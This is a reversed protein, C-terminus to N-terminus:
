PIQKLLNHKILLEREAIEVIKDLNVLMEARDGKQQITAGDSFLVDIDTAVTNARVAKAASAIKEYICVEM